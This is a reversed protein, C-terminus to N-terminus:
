SAHQSSVTSDSPQKPFQVFGLEFDLFIKEITSRMYAKHKSDLRKFRGILSKCYHDDDDYADARTLKPPSPTQKEFANSSLPSKVARHIRHYQQEDDSDFVRSRKGRNQMSFMRNRVGGSTAVNSSDVTSSSIHHILNHRPKEDREDGSDHQINGNSENSSRMSKSEAAIQIMSIRDDADDTQVNSFFSHEDRKDHNSSLETLDAALGDSNADRKFLETTSERTKIHPVLWNLYEIKPDVLNTVDNVWYGEKAKKLYRSLRTRITDYRRKVDEVRVGLCESIKEWAGEKCCKDKFPESRRDYVAPFQKIVQMFEEDTLKSADTNTTPSSFAFSPMNGHSNKVMENVAM